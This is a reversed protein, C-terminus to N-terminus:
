DSSSDRDAGRLRLVSFSGGGAGGEQVVELGNRDLRREHLRRRLGLRDSPRSASFAVFRGGPRTVRAIERLAPRGGGQVVLDFHDDPFRLGRRGGAKFAVRGEPDLGIRENARRIADESRDVGRVSARPFERALFLTADGEGCGIELVREPSSPVHLVAAALATMEATTPMRRIM